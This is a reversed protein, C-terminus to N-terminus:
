RQQGGEGGPRHLSFRTLAMGGFVVVARGAVENVFVGIVLRQVPRATFFMLRVGDSRAIYGM